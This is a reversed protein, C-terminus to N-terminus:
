YTESINTKIFIVNSLNMRQHKNHVSLIGQSLCKNYWVLEFMSVFMNYTRDVVTEYDYIRILPVLRVQWIAHVLM